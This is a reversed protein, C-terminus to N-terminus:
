HKQGENQRIFNAVHEQGTRELAKLFKRCQDESTLVNLVAENRGFVTRESRVDVTQDPTLVEMSLLQGLLGFDPEVIDALRSKLKVVNALM